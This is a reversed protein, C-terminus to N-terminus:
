KAIKNILENSVTSIDKNLLVVNKRKNVVKIDEFIDIANKCMYAFVQSCLFCISILCMWNLIQLM